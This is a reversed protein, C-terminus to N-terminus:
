DPTTEPEIRLVGGHQLLRLRGLVDMGLLPRDDLNPLVVMRLRKARIGGRLEIDVRATSGTVAGNATRSQVRGETKLGMREAMAQSMTSRTAGTDVLFDVAHGDITGPWHYHGDASRQIEIRDATFSLQTAAQRREYEKFGIFLVTGVLLWVTAIKLVHTM